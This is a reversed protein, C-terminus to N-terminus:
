SSEEADDQHTNVTLQHAQNKNVLYTGGSNESMYDNDNM